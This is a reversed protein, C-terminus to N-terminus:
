HGVQYVQGGLVTALIPIDKITMAPETLPDRALVTFDARKGIAISGIENELSLLYAANITIARLADEASIRAESGLVKGSATVRNVAAWMSHLPGLSTVPSDSHLGFLVGAKKAAAGNDLREARDPGLTISYHQDGWYYIQNAFLNVYAGLDHTRKYQEATAMQNHELIFHPIRQPFKNQLTELVDLAADTAQDGNVHVHIPFGAQWFPLAETMLQQADANFLGNPAGNFYGPWNLRATFGQISGDVVFKVGSFRLKDLNQQMLTQLHAIGSGPKQKEMETLVFGNYVMVMRVPFKPDNAANKFQDLLTAEEEGGFLLDTITTIGVNNALSGVGYSGKKVLDPMFIQNLFASLVPAIAAEEKLVGNPAGNSGKMVGPTTTQESYGSRNLLVSNVYAIHGSANLIFIPRTKSIQDLDSATLDTNNFYIPDYGWAILIQNPDTMESNIQQLRQMVAQKSKLGPLVSANYGLFDFYGLYPHSLFGVLMSFHAHPEIFGPTIIAEQFDTNIQFSGPKLWTKMEELSGIAYIRGDKVAVASAEPQFADMTIIKKAVFLTIPTQNVAYVLQMCFGTLLFIGVRCIKKWHNKM